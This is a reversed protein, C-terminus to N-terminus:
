FAQMGAGKVQRSLYWILLVTFLLPILLPLIIASFWYSFGSGTTVDVSVKSIQDPTVGLGILTDTFSVGDEKKSVKQVGDNYTIALGSDTVDVGKVLGGKIDTALQTINISAKAVFYDSIYSYSTVLIGLVLLVILINRLFEGRVPPLKGKGKKNSPQNTQKNM